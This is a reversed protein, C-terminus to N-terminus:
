VHRKLSTGNSVCSDISTRCRLLQITSPSTRRQDDATGPLTYNHNASMLRRNNPMDVPTKILHLQM